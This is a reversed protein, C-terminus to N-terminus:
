SYCCGAAAEKTNDVPGMSCAKNKPSQAPLQEHSSHPLATELVRRSLLLLPFVVLHCCRPPIVERGATGADSWIPHATQTYLCHARYLSVTKVTSFSPMRVGHLHVQRLFFRDGQVARCIPHSLVATSTQVPLFPLMRHRSSRTTSGDKSPQHRPLTAGISRAAWFSTQLEKSDKLLSLSDYSGLM